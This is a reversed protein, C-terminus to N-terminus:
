STPGNSVERVLLSTVPELDMAAQVNELLRIVNADFTDVGSLLDVTTYVEKFVEHKTPVEMFIGEIAVDDVQGGHVEGGIRVIISPRINALHRPM